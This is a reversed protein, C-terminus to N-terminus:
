RMKLNAWTSVLKGGAEVATVLDGDTEGIVINDIYILGYLGFKGSEFTGDSGTLFPDMTSFPTDDDIEKAYANFTDDQLELRFRYWQQPQAGFDGAAAVNTWGAQQRWFDFTPTEPLAGVRRDFLYFNESDIYRFLIGMYFDGPFYADYEAIYNQWTEEGVTWIKGGVDHRAADQALDSHAFVKNAGDLPDIIVTGEGNGDFALEWGQPVDGITEAEFDNAYFQVALAIPTLLTLLAISVTLQKM